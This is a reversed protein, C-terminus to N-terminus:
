GGSACNYHHRRGGPDIPRRNEDDVPKGANVTEEGNLHADVLGLYHALTNHVVAQCAIVVTTHHKNGFAKGIAVTSLDTRERVMAMATRRAAAVLRGKRRGDLQAETVGFHTCVVQRIAAVLTRQEPTM